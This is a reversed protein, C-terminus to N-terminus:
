KILRAIVGRDIRYITRAQFALERNHTVMVVTLGKKSIKKLTGIIEKSSEMDLDGTPEDALLIRPKTILSRALMMRQLEGGSLEEPFCDRQSSLRFLALLGDLRETYDKRDSLGTTFSLPSLINEEVTLHPIFVKKQFIIGLYKKRVLSWERDSLRTLKKSDFYVDGSSPRILGAIILLLTSKGAGSPGVFSIFNGENIDLNIGKLVEKKGGKASYSKRIDILRFFM